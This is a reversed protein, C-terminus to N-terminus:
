ASGTPYVFVGSGVGRFTNGLLQKVDGTQPTELCNLQAFLWFPGSLDNLFLKVNALKTGPILNLPADYCNANGDFDFEISVEAKDIGMEGNYHGGDESCTSDLDTIQPRVEWKKTAWVGSGIRAKANKASLPKRSM